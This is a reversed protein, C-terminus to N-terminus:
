QQAEQYAAVAALLAVIARSTALDIPLQLAAAEHKARAYAVAADVVPQMLAIRAEYDDILNEREENWAYTANDYGAAYASGDDTM